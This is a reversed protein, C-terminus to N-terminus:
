CRSRSSAYQHAVPALIAREVSWGRALRQSLTSRNMGAREALETIALGYPQERALRSNRTVVVIRGFREGCSAPPLRKSCGCSLSAGSRLHRSQVSSSAGCDCRCTFAVAKRKGIRLVKSDVVVWRGYRKGVPAAEIMRAM